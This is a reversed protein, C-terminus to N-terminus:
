LGIIFTKLIQKSLTVTYLGSFFHLEQGLSIPSDPSLLSAIALVSLLALVFSVMTIAHSITGELRGLGPARKSYFSYSFMTLFATIFVLVDIAVFSIYPISASLSYGFPLTVVFSFTESLGALLGISNKTLIHDLDLLRDM